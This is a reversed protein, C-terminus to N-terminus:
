SILIDKRGTPWVLNAGSQHKPNALCDNQRVITLLRSSIAFETDADDKTLTGCNAPVESWFM